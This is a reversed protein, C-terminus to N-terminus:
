RDVIKYKNQFLLTTDNGELEALCLENFPCDWNCDKTDNRPFLGNQILAYKLAETQQVDKLAERSNEVTRPVWERFFFPNELEKLEDLVDQYGEPGHGLEHIAELYSDYTINANKAKSLKGSKLVKPKEPVAKKITNYMVGEVPIGLKRAALVYISIQKDRLTHETKIQRVFKHEMIWYKGGLEIIGDWFGELTSNAVNLQYPIETGLVRFHDNQFAWQHYHKIVKEALEAQAFAEEDKPFHEQVYSQFARFAAKYAIERTGEVQEGYYIELFKHGARGFLFKNDDRKPRIKRV